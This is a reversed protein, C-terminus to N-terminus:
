TKMVLSKRMTLELDARSICICRYMCMNMYM